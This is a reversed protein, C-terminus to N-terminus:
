SLTIAPENTGVDLSGTIGTETFPIAHFAPIHSVIQVAIAENFSAGGTTTVTKDVGSCLGIESIIALNENGFMISAVNLLQQCEWQSMSFPILATSQVFLSSLNNSGQNNLTPASPTLNAPGPVFATTTTVGSNIAALQLAVATNSLDLRRLYYGYYQQGGFSVQKRLAYNAQLQTSIDQAVPALVFPLQSYLGADRPDHPIPQIYPVGNATQFSHGGNGIAYYKVAPIVGSAPAVGAQVGLVENLTSYQLLNFPLQSFQSTQLQSGYATRVVQLAM